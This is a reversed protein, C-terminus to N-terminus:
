SGDHRPDDAAKKVENKVEARSTGPGCDNLSFIEHPLCDLARCLKVVTAWRVGYSRRRGRELECIAQMSMGARVGLERQSLGRSRRIHALEGM